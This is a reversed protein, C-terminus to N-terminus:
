HQCSIHGLSDLDTADAVGLVPAEGVIKDDDVLLLIQKLQGTERFQMEIGKQGDFVLDEKLYALLRSHDSIGQRALTDTVIKAAAWGAWARDDMAKEFRASFRKNLDRAAYKKFKHHWARAHASSNPNKKRWQVEADALMKESPLIHFGNPYCALRLSDSASGINMIAIDPTAKILQRLEETEVNAIIAIPDSLKESVYDDFEMTRLSFGIGLFQGQHNAEDLGQQLGRYASSNEPGIYLLEYETALAWKGWLSLYLVLIIAFLTAASNRTMASILRIYLASLIANQL